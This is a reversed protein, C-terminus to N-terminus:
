DIDGRPHRLRLTREGNRAGALSLIAGHETFEQEAHIEWSDRDDLDALKVAALGEETGIWLTGDLLFLDRISSNPLGDERYYRRWNGVQALPADGSLDLVTLGSSTAFFVRDGETVISHIRNGALGDSTNYTNWTGDHYVSL